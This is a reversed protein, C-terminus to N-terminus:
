DVAFYVLDSCRKYGSIFASSNGRVEDQAKGQPRTRRRRHNGRLESLRRPEKLKSELKSLRGEARFPAISMGEVAPQVDYIGIYSTAM